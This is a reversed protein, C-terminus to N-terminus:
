LQGNVTFGNLTFGADPRKGTFDSTFPGLSVTGSMKAGEVTGTYTAEATRPGMTISLTFSFKAGSVWGSTISATGRQGTVSGTLTGDEAMTLDATSEQPGQPTSVTQIGKNM